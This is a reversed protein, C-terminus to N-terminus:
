APEKKAAPKVTSDLRKLLSDIYPASEPFAAKEAQWMQRAATADGVSLHLMGLHARFGPPLVGTAARAKEAHAEMTRIQEDPSAGERLLAEYQQKPFTEWVYLPKPAQACGVIVLVASAVTLPRVPLRLRM